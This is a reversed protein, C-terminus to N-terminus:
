QIEEETSVMEVAAPISTTNSNGADIIATKQKKFDDNPGLVALAEPDLMEVSHWFEEESEYHHHHQHHHHRQENNHVNKQNTMTISKYGIITIGTTTKSNWVLPYNRILIYTTHLQRIL